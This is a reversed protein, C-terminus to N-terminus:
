TGVEVTIGDTDGELVKAGRERSKDILMLLLERGAATVKSALEVDGFIATSLGLYGYFSNILIKFRKPRADYELKDDADVAEKAM